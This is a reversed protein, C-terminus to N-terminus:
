VLKSVEKKIFVVLGILGSGLLLLSAPEPVAAVDFNFNDFDSQGPVLYDPASAYTGFIIV